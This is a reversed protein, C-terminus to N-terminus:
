QASLILAAGSTKHSATDVLVGAVGDVMEAIGVLVGPVGAVGAM